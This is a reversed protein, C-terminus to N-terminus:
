LSWFRLCGDGDLSLLTRTEEIWYTDTSARKAILGKPRQLRWRVNEVRDWVEITGDGTKAMLMDSKGLWVATRVGGFARLTRPDLPLTSKVQFKTVIVNEFPRWIYADLGGAVVVEEDNRWDFRSNRDLGLEDPQGEGFRIVEKKEDCSYLMLFPVLNVDRREMGRLLVHKSDPSWAGGGNQGGTPGITHFCEGSNVNCFRFTGDWSTSLITQGDPSFQAWLISDIHGGLAYKQAHTVMDYVIIHPQKSEPRVGHQTTRNDSLYLLLRGDPSFPNTGGSALSGTLVNLGSMELESSMKDLANAFDAQLTTLLPSSVALDHESTLAPSIVSMSKSALDESPIPPVSDTRYGKEDLNYFVLRDLVRSILLYRTNDSELKCPAFLLTQCGDLPARFQARMKRSKLRYVSIIGGRSAAIFKGDSTIASTPNACNTKDSPSSPVAIKHDEQGWFRHAPKDNTNIAWSAPVGDVSFESEVDYEHEEQFRARNMRLVM